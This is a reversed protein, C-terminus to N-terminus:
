VVSRECLREEPSVVEPADPHRIGEHPTAGGEEFRVPEPAVHGPPVDVRHRVPDHALLKGVEVHRGIEPRRPFDFVGEAGLETVQVDRAARVTAIRLDRDLVEEPDLDLGAAPAAAADIQERPVNDRGVLSVRIV